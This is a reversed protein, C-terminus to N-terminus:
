AMGIKRGIAHFLRDAAPAKVEGRNAVKRYYGGIREAQSGGTITAMALRNPNESKITKNKIVKM